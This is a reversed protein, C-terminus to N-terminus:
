NKPEFTSRFSWQIVNHTAVIGGTAASIGVRVFEPLTAKLDVSANVTFSAQKSPNPKRKSLRDIPPYTLTATLVKTQALYTINVDAVEANRWDWAETKVSVISNVDIGIHRFSPDWENDAGTFTDFEVAVIQNSSRSNEDNFLGLFAGPQTPGSPFDPSALFFALGDAPNSPDPSNILFSFSTTFSAVKKSDWIKLPTTYLVRGVSNETPLGNEVKTLQLAGSSLVSADGQFILDSEKPSFKNITFSLQKSKSSSNAKHLLLLFFTIFTPLLFQTSKINSTAM